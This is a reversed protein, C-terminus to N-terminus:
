YYECAMKVVRRRAKEWWFTMAIIHKERAKKRNRPCTADVTKAVSAELTIAKTDFVFQIIVVCNATPAAASTIM